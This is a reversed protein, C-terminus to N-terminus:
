RNARDRRVIELSSERVDLEATRKQLALIRTRYSEKRREESRVRVLTRLADEILAKKTRASSYKMAEEVLEDNLVVNTRM